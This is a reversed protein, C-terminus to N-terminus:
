WGTPDVASAVNGVRDHGQQEHRNVGLYRQWNQPM